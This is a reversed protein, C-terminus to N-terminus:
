NFLFFLPYFLWNGVYIVMLSGVLIGFGLSIIRHTKTKIWGFSYGIALTLPIFTLAVTVLGISFGALFSFIYIGLSSIWYFQHKGKIAFIISVISIFLASFAILSFIPMRQEGEGM